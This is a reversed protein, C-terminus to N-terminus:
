PREPYSPIGPVILRPPNYLKRFDDEWKQKIARAKTGAQPDIRELAEITDEVHSRDSKILPDQLHALMLPVAAKADPGIQGLSVVATKHSEPTSPQPGFPNFRREGRKDKVAEILKPVAAKAKPGFGGVAFIAANYIDLDDKSDMLELVAKLADPDDRGVKGLATIAARRVVKEKRKLAALLEPAGIGPEGFYGLRTAALQAIDPNPDAVAAAFDPLLTRFTSARFTIAYLSPLDPNDKRLNLFNPEHQYNRCWNISSVLIGYRVTPDKDRMAARVAALVLTDPVTFFGDLHHALAIAVGARVLSSNRTDNFVTVLQPIAEPGARGLDFSAPSSWNLGHPLGPRGTEELKKVLEQIREPTLPKEPPSFLTITSVLGATIVAHM